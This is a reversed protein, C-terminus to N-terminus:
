SVTKKEAQKIREFQEFLVLSAAYLYEKVTEQKQLLDVKKRKSQKIILFDGNKDIEFDLHAIRNRLDRDIWKSFFFLGCSKLFDLKTSLSLYPSEVDDLTRAHRTYHHVSDAELHLDFGKGVSLLITLNVFIDSVAEVDNLYMMALILNAHKKYDGTRKKALSDLISNWILQNNTARKVKETFQDIYAILFKYQPSNPYYDAFLPEFERRIQEVIEPKAKAKLIESSNM